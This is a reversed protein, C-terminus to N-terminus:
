VVFANAVPRYGSGDRVRSLKSHKAAVSEMKKVKASEFYEKHKLASYAYDIQL